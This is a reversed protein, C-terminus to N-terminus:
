PPERTLSLVSRIKSTDNILLFNTHIHLVVDAFKPYVLNKKIVDGPRRLIAGVQPVGAKSMNQFNKM